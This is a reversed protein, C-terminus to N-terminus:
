VPNSGTIFAGFARTNGNCWYAIIGTEQTM